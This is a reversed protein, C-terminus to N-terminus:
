RTGGQGLYPASDGARRADFPTSASDGTSDSRPTTPAGRGASTGDYFSRSDDAMQKLLVCPTFRPETTPLKELHAVVNSVGLTDAYRLPGGHFPAFGTGLVMALDIDPTTAVNEEVCRAAENVMLLSMRQELEDHTFHKHRHVSRMVDLDHNPKDHAGDYFGRGSKKGLMRAGLMKEILGPATVREGFPKSLTNVVHAAVDLGVEDLLRLPGMPMGFDLMAEDIDHASAGLDFLRVAEVLYPMLIRNVIFGPSDKSVVPVKGIRRTFEVARSLIEPATKAGPVVEVLEMRHVPNFFHLGVVREAANTSAAIETVSLASTNTALITNPGTQVALVRFIDQKLPLKETAAEIVIDADRMPMDTAAAFVRDKGDRAELPTLHHHKVADEYLASVAAEGRVLQELSVDRLIVSLGRSSLWQAIGAGMVGAGIVAARSFAPPVTTSKKAREKMVFLRLLNRCAGTQALRLIAERERELSKELPLSVGHTIVDLAEFLAPYNGRTRAALERAVRTRILMASVANNSVRHNPRHVKVPKLIRECAIDLLRERPVLEDIMGMKLAREAALTKGALIIQLTKPIGILRPLRTCGGWAPIIGLLVEPLGIKTARAGTAIRYGCALALEFGGGICAGHIAAVTQIHLSALRNFVGQGLQILEVLTNGTQLQRSETTASGTPIISAPPNAVAEAPQLGAARQDALGALAHIDAGAVFISQKASTLILGRLETAHEIWDLHSDLELLTDRDFINASSNPRAFTLTCIGEAVERLINRTQCPTMDKGRRVPSQDAMNAAPQPSDAPGPTELTKM